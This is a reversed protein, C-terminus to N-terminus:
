FQIKNLDKFKTLWTRQFPHRRCESEDTKMDEIVEGVPWSDTGRSDDDNRNKTTGISDTRDIEPMKPVTVQFFTTDRQM